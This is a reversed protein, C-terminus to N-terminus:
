VPSGQFVLETAFGGCGSNNQTEQTVQADPNLIIGTWTVNEYDVFTVDKGLTLSIFALYDKAQQQSMEKFRMKLIETKPWQPDRGVLLDGARSNRNIRALEISDSNAFEPIRLTVSTTGFTLVAKQHVVDICICPIAAKALSAGGAFVINQNVALAKVKSVSATQVFLLNHTFSRGARATQTFNITQSIQQHKVTKAVQGLALTSSALGIRVRAAKQHLELFNSVSLIKLRQQASQTLNLTHSASLRLTGHVAVTQNLTLKQSVIQMLKSKKAVASQALGLINSTSVLFEAM